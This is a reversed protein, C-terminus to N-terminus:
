VTIRRLWTWWEALIAAFAAVAFYLWWPRQGAFGGPIAASTKDATTKALNSVDPDSINVAFTARSGRGEAVYLGPARLMGVSGAPLRSLPVAAGGPGSM